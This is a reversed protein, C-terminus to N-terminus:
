FRTTIREHLIRFATAAVCPVQGNGVARFKDMAAAMGDALCQIGPYGNKWVPCADVQQAFEAVPWLDSQDDCPRHIGDAKRRFRHPDAGLLWFRERHHPAGLADAGLVCWEADYGMESLDHLVVGLGRYTLAPSNELFVFRPRIEGVIRAMQKWLGSREGEIGNAKKNATSIDQCPFGGSVIDVKGRWPVGDFTRVDRHIPFNELLGDRQRAKLVAVPFDALEVACVTRWGLLTGGLIGGGAGAFLALERM